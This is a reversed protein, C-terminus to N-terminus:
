ETNVKITKNIKRYREKTRQERYCNLKGLTANFFNKDEASFLVIQM